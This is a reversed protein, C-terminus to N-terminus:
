MRLAAIVMFTAACMSANVLNVAVARNWRQGQQEYLWAAMTINACMWLGWTWLSHQSSDGSSVLAWLTPLYSLVRASNLLTFAWTLVFLYRSRWLSRQSGAIAQASAPATPAPSQADISAANM